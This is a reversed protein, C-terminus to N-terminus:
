FYLYFLSPQFFAKWLTDLICYPKIVSPQQDIQFSLIVPVRLVEQNNESCRQGPQVQELHFGVEGPQVQALIFRVEGPQAKGKCLEVGRVQDYRARRPLFSTVVLYKLFYLQWPRTGITSKIFHLQM